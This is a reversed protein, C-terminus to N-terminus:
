AAHELMARLLVNCGAALDAPTASEIENHSIGDACPVFIMGTPAVRNIYGADHGAGSVIDMHPYGAEDAAKRVAEICGKDYHVAPSNWIEKCEYQLDLDDCVEAVTAELEAKMELLVEDQPHRLDVSFFVSGPITNRSNPSVKVLGVTSVGPKHDLAIKNIRDVIRACGLMADKRRNMPTTGAHSETGTLTVEFWRMGQIGQVIGITRKEAELIPGQEIHAEFFAKFKRGGVPADGFYGIRKLEEGMTKGDLDARSHGYEETFVGAFVGSAVMAPAFRSGEENTWVSVEIPAETEFKYDNLTRIVELGALVGYVGDFKGGTPQTDLHSGTVVPPLDNNRGPRRAFINGMRDVTITCGAEKCWRVFLDRGQKDLDTLALRACGGKPTAGIKAMEMLSEWLRDQNVQINKVNAM